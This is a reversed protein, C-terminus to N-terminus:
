NEIMLFKINDKFYRGDGFYNTITDRICYSGTSINAANCSGINFSGNSSSVKACDFGEPKIFKGHHQENALNAVRIETGTPYSFYAGLLLNEFLRLFFDLLDSNITGLEQLLQSLFSPGVIAKLM